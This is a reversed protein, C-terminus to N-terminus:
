FLLLFYFSRKFFETCLRRVAFPFDFGPAEGELLEYGKVQFSLYAFYGDVITELPCITIDGVTVPETKVSEEKGPEGKGPQGNQEQEMEVPEQVSQELKTAMGQETLAQQQKATARITGQLGRSWFYHAAAAATIGTAALAFACVLAAARSRFIWVKKGARKAAKNHLSQKESMTDTGETQIRTLADDVKQLVIEPVEIDEKFIHRDRM